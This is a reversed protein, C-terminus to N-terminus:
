NPPGERSKPLRVRHPRHAQPCDLCGEVEHQVQCGAAPHPKRGAPSRLSALSFQQRPAELITGEANACARWDQLQGSKWRHFGCDAAQGARRGHSRVKRSRASGPESCRSQGEPSQSARRMANSRRARNATTRRPSSEGPVRGAQTSSRRAQPPFAEM